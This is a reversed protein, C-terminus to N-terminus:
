LHAEIDVHIQEGGAGGALIHSTIYDEDFTVQFDGSFVESSVAVVAV